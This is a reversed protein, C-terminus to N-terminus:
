DSEKFKQAFQKTLNLYLDGYETSPEIETGEFWENFSTILIWDPRCNLAARWTDKYYRGSKRGTLAGPKRLRQDDYGPMVPAAMLKNKKRAIQSALLYKQRIEKNEQGPPLYEHFGSFGNLNSIKFGYNIIAFKTDLLRISEVPVQELVRSFLFIVPRENLRVFASSHAYTTEIYNLSTELDRLSNVNEIYLSTKFGTSECLPVIKKINSDTPTNKGWWSLILGDIAVNKALQIHKKIIDSSGSDYYGLVPTNTIAENNNGFWNNRYWPYYFAFIMPSFDRNKPSIVYHEVPINKILKSELKFSNDMKSFTLSALTDSQTHFLVETEGISGKKLLFNIYNPLRIPLIIKYQIHIYSSDYANKEISFVGYKLSRHQKGIIVSDSIYDFTLNNIDLISWDSTTMIDLYVPYGEFHASYLSYPKLVWFL